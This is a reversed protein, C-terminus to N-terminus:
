LGTTLIEKVEDETVDYWNKYADAVAFGWGSRINACYVKDVKTAVMEISNLHATPVSIIIKEAGSKKMAKVAAIMTYGSAIGDDVLVVKRNNIEPFPKSGRFRELRRNVKNSATRIGEDIQENDLGIQNIIDRNLEVTGDFAVAGYGAETNWPLTIKSVVALDLELNLKSALPVAVPVGGAPIGFIIADSNAYDKMLNALVNGAHNRDQFVRTVDRLKPIDVVNEITNIM